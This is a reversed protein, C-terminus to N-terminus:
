VLDLLRQLCQPAVMHVQQMRHGLVRTRCGRESQAVNRHELLAKTACGNRDAIGTVFFPNGGRKGRDIEAGVHHLAMETERTMREDMVDIAAQLRILISTQNLDHSGARVSRRQVGYQGLLSERAPESHTVNLPRKKHLLRICL